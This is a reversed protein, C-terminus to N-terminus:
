LNFVLKFNYCVNSTLNNFHEFRKVVYASIHKVDGLLPENESNM